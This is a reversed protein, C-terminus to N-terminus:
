VDCRRRDPICLARWRDRRACGRSSARNEDISAALDTGNVALQHGGVFLTQHPGRAVARAASEGAPRRKAHTPQIAPLVPHRQRARRKVSLALIQMDRHPGAANAVSAVNRPEDRQLGSRVNGRDRTAAGPLCRPTREWEASARHHAAALGSSAQRHRIRRRPGSSFPQDRGRAPPFATRPMRYIVPPAQPAGSSRDKPGNNSAPRLSARLLDCAAFHQQDESQSERSVRHFSILVDWQIEPAHRRFIM